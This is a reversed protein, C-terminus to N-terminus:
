KMLKITFVPRSFCVQSYGGKAAKQPSAYWAIFTLNINFYLQIVRMSIFYGKVKKKKARINKYFNLDFQTAKLGKCM